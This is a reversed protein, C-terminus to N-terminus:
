LNEESIVSTNSSNIEKKVVENKKDPQGPFIVPILFILLSSGGLTIFIYKVFAM